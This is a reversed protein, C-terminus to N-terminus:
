ARSTQANKKIVVEHKFRKIDEKQNVGIELKLKGGGASRIHWSTLQFCIM